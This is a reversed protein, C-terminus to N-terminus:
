PPVALSQAPLINSAPITESAFWQQAGGFYPGSAPVTGGYTFSGNAALGISGLAIVFAERREDNLTGEYGFAHLQYEGLSWSPEAGWEGQLHVTSPPSAAQQSVSTLTSTQGVELQDPAHITAEGVNMYGPGSQTDDPDWSACGDQDCQSQPNLGMPDVFRLPSGFAYEYPNLDGKVGHIAMPDPSIFRGLQPSYYRAHMYVLGVEANDWQGTWREDERQQNWRSPRWDSDIGGYPLYSMAEVLESSSQEVVFSTSGLPDRLTLLVEPNTGAPNKASFVHGYPVGGANVYVQETRSDHEYNLQDTGPLYSAAGLSRDWLDNADDSSTQVNGRLDYGFTQSRVRNGTSVPAPDPYLGEGLEDSTYPNGAVGAADDGGASMYSTSVSALRYDDWYTMTRSGVPLAGQPWEAPNLNLQTVTVPNGVMDYAMTSFALWGQTTFDTPQPPDGQAYSIWPGSMRGLTYFVLREDDDYTMSSTTQAM